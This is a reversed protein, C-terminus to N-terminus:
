DHFQSFSHPSSSQFETTAYPAFHTTAYPPFQYAVHTHSTPIRRPCSVHTHSMPILSAEMLEVDVMHNLFSSVKLIEADLLTAERLLKEKLLAGGATKKRLKGSSKLLQQEYFEEFAGMTGVFPLRLRESVKVFLEDHAVSLAVTSHESTAFTIPMRMEGVGDLFFAAEEIADSAGGEASARCLAASARYVVPREKSSSTRSREILAGVEEADPDFLIESPPKNGSEDLYVCFSEAIAPHGTAEWVVRAKFRAREQLQERCNDVTVRGVSAADVVTFDEFNSHLLV